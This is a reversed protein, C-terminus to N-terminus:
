TRISCACNWRRASRGCAASSPRATSACSAPRPPFPNKGRFIAVDAARLQVTRLGPSTSASNASSRAIPHAPSRCSPTASARRDRMQGGPEGDTFVTRRFGRFLTLAIAAPLDRVATELLGGDAVVALRTERRPRSDLEAAAQDGGRDRSIRPQGACRSRGSSSTSRRTPSIPKRRPAARCCCASRSRRRTTSRRRSTSIGSVPRLSILSDIVLDVFRDSRVMRDFHFAEPVSMVTRIRFTTLLPGNHVLAVEARCATSAFVQDNVAVGHYWGDGIDARDRLHAPRPLRPPAADTLTLTGNAEIQVALHENAMARESTALGPVEPHRTAHRAPPACPSRRIAWRPFPSACRSRSTTATSARPFSRRASASRVRNM